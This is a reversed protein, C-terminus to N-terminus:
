QQLFHQASSLRKFFFNISLNMQCAIQKFINLIKIFLLGYKFPSIMFLVTLPHWIGIIKSLTCLRQRHIKHELVQLGTSVYIFVYKLVLHNGYNYYNQFYRHVYKNHFFM